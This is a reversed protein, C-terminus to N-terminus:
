WRDVNKVSFWESWNYGATMAMYLWIGIFQLFEGFTIPPGQINKNSEVLIVSEFFDKPMFMLFMTLMDLGSM